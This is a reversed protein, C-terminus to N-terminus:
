GIASSRVKHIARSLEISTLPKSIVSRIGADKLEANQFIDGHGTCLIIPIKPSQAHIRRALDLGCLKPMTMDTIVLGFMDPHKQFLELGELADFRMTVRYGQRELFLKGLRALPETDDIFLIHLASSGKKTELVALDPLADSRKGADAGRQSATLDQNIPLQIRFVTGEKHSTSFSVTGGLYQEGLLKIGYTGLGHGSGSKTTFSREFIRGAIQGPISGSNHVSFTGTIGDSEYAIIMPDKASSAEAANLSMNLLVRLLIVKDIYHQGKAKEEFRIARRSTLRHCRLLEELEILIESAQIVSYEPKLTGKEADLLSRHYRIEERLHDAISLYQRAAAHPNTQDQIQALGELSGLSNLLDHLFIDELIERRKVASVDLISFVTLSHDKNKLPTARVQFDRTETKDGCRIAISCEGVAPANKEHCELIAM